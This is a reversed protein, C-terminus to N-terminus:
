QLEPIYSRIGLEFHDTSSLRQDLYHMISPHLQRVIHHLLQLEGDAVLVLKKENQATKISSNHQFRFLIEGQDMELKKTAEPLITQCSKSGEWINFTKLSALLRLFSSLPPSLACIEHNDPAM